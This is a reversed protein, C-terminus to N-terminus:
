TKRLTFSCCLPFHLAFRPSFFTGLLAAPTSRSLTCSTFSAFTFSRLRALALSLALACAPAAVSMQHQTAFIACFSRRARKSKTKKQTKHIKQARQRWCKRQTAKAPLNTFLNQSQSTRLLRGPPSAPHWHTHTHLKKRWTKKNVRKQSQTQPHPVPLATLAADAHTSKKRM